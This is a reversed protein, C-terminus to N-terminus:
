AQTSEGGLGLKGEQALKGKPGTEPLLVICIASALFLVACVIFQMVWNEGCVAAIGIPLFYAIGVGITTNLGGASGAYKTGIGPLAPIMAELVPGSLASLFGNLVLVAWMGPGLPVFWNIAMVAAGLFTSILLFGKNKGRWIVFAPAAFCALFSGVTIVSAMSGATATEVGLGLELATPLIACFQTTTALTLGYALAILWVNKNKMAVALYKTVPEEEPAAEGEPTNRMFFIWFLAVVTLAIAAVLFSMYMTGLLTSFAQALVIALCSAAYYFGVALSTQHKFWAGFIKTMNANLCSIGFGLMFMAVMQVPYNGIMFTRVYGGIVAVILGAIVVNKVGYRDALGGAPISLVVGALMPLLMMSTLGAVDIGNVDMVEVGWASIQYQMFNAMFCILCVALLVVWRYGPLKEKEESM